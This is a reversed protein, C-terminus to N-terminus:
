QPCESNEIWYVYGSGYKMNKVVSYQFSSGTSLDLVELQLSVYPIPHGAIMALLEWPMLGIRESAILIVLSKSMPDWTLDRIYYKEEFARQFIVRETMLDIVVLKYPGKPAYEGKERVSIAIGKRDPSWEWPSLFTVFEGNLSTNIIKTILKKDENSISKQRDDKLGVAHSFVDTNVFKFPEVGGKTFSVRYEYALDQNFIKLFICGNFFQQHGSDLRDSESYAIKTFFMSFM